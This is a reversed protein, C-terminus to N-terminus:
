AIGFLRGLPKCVVDLNYFEHALALNRESVLPASSFREAADAFGSGADDRLLELEFGQDVLIETDNVDSSIAYCGMLFAEIAKINSKCAAFRSRVLPAIAITVDSMSRFMDMFSGLPKSQVREFDAYLEASLEGVLKFELESKELSARINTRWTSFDKDHTRTGPFYGLRHCSLKKARALSLTFNLLKDPFGNRVICVEASPNEKLVYDAM